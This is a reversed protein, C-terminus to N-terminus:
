RKMYYPMEIYDIPDTNVPQIIPANAKDLLHVHGTDTPTYSHVHGTDVLTGEDHQHTDAAVFTGVGAQVEVNANNDGTEGDIIANGTATDAPDFLAFGEETEALPDFEPPTATVVAGTYAAVTSGKPYAGNAFNPKTVLVTTADDLTILATAGNCLVWGTIMGPQTGPGYPLFVVQGTPVEGQGRAWGPSTAAPAAGEAAWVFLRWHTLDFFRLGIDNALLGVPLSPYDDTWTGSLYEWQLLESTFDVNAQVGASTLLQIQIPTTFTDVDYNVGNITITTGALEATFQDGSVWDVTLVNTDVVAATSRAVYTLGTDTETYTTGAPYNTAPFNARDARTGRLAILSIDVRSKLANFWTQWAITFLRQWFGADQEKENRRHQYPVGIEDAPSDVPPTALPPPGLSTNDANM